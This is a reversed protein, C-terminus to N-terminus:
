RRIGERLRLPPEVVGLGSLFSLFLSSPLGKTFIDAYQITSPVHLVRVEGKIVKERVFHIDIEIHKTRQHQVLNSSLYVASVNDCYVVTAKTLPRGMKLLLNRLWCAEAVANAVGKYEAEASSRSITPQRKASWSILNDGLYLCFGSTSRRTTPCGAWDADTYATLSSHQKKLLQLGLTKTGQIYRIVRKMALWHSERPDHMFLCLQQVVYSLDPRTFTLYQLAGALSRYETPNSVPKGDDEALKSKLDVPTSCPKCETLGARQIIEEAYKSQNLFLGKANFMASVSLFSHIIGCDTMPFESKLVRIITDKLSTTSATVIIDDVYLILYAMLGNKNYVFLSADSRSQVFGNNTIFTVFRANWARPAQKLGYISRKLKCVYDPKTKDVFGPPQFMYVTEDLTGHLFANQVDLQNVEWDNALAVHLVTRITVPKVVPSFTEDFDVGHEQSKGNAVLRSKHKCFVGDADYKHKYLWMSRVINTNPPRPVLDFTESKVIADYEITMSPNWNPDDLASLHSKPLPSITQTQLSFIQKPKSNGHKSRTSMSHRPAENVVPATQTPAETSPPAAVPIHKTVSPAELIQRFISSSSPEIHLFDYASTNQTKAEKYPFSTEDFSVHRSIIIKKTSLDM